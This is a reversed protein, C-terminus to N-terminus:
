RAARANSRAGTAAFSASPRWPLAEWPEVDPLGTFLWPSFAQKACLGALGSGAFALTVDHSELNSTSDYAGHGECPDVADCWSDAERCSCRVRSRDHSGGGQTRRV